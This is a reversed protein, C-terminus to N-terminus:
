EAQGPKAFGTCIKKWDSSNMGEPFNDPPPLTLPYPQIAPGVREPPGICVCLAKAANMSQAMAKSFAEKNGPDLTVNIQIPWIYQVNNITNVPPGFMAMPVEGTGLYSMENRAREALSATNIDAGPKAAQSGCYSATPAQELALRPYKRTSSNWRPDNKYTDEVMRYFYNFTETVIYTARAIHFDSTIIYLKGTGKPIWRLAFWANEATTTAQSELIIKNKPIGHDELVKALQSAETTGVGAPDGGSVVLMSVMGGDLLEKAKLARDVLVQPASGDPNLSQGLVIGIAKNSGEVINTLWPAVENQSDWDFGSFLSTRFQEVLEKRLSRDHLGTRQLESLTGMQNLSVPEQVRLAPRVQLLSVHEVDWSAWVSQAFVAMIGLILATAQRAM